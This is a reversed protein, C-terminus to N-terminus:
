CKVISMMIYPSQTTKNDLHDIATTLQTACAHVFYGNLDNWAVSWSGLVVNNWDCKGHFLLISVFVPKIPFKTLSPAALEVDCQVHIPEVNESTGQMLRWKWVDYLGKVSYRRGTWCLIITGQEFPTILYLATLALERSSFMSNATNVQGGGHIKLPHQSTPGSRMAGHRTRLVIPLLSSWSPSKTLITFIYVHLIGFM